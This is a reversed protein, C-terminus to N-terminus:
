YQRPAPLASTPAADHASLRRPALSPSDFFDLLSSSSAGGKSDPSSWEASPVAGHVASRGSQAASPGSDHAVGFPPPLALSQAAVAVAAAAPPAAAVAPVPSGASGGALMDDIRARLKALSAADLEPLLSLCAALINVQTTSSSALAAPQIRMPPQPTSLASPAAFPQFATSHPTPSRPPPLPPPPLSAAAFASLAAASRDQITCTLFYVYTEDHAM